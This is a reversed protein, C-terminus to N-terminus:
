ASTTWAGGPGLLVQWLWGAAVEVSPRPDRELWARVVGMAAGTIGAAVVELPVGDYGSVEAHRIGEFAVREIRDRVRATVLASGHDGLVRAYLAANEEIHELYRLLDQPPGSVPGSLMALRAGTEEVGADLADALLMDKDSYHQYFSSRNVGARDAIDAVTIEDLTRERALELLAQQLSTRTRAIRADMIRSEAM